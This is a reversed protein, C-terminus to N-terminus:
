QRRYPDAYAHHHVHPDRVSPVCERIFSSYVTKGYYYLQCYSSNVSSGCIGTRM